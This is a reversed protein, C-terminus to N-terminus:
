EHGILVDDIKEEPNPAPLLYMFRIVGLRGYGKTIPKVEHTTQSPMVMLMNREIPIELDETDKQKTSLIIDGGEFPKPENWIWYMLSIAAIDTHGKYYDGKKNDDDKEDTSVFGSFTDFGIIKRLRNYPEYIGRLAMFLALNQGYRSGFEAIVGQTEIIKKYLFDMFLIKGLSGPTLYLGLNKLLENNPIQSTRLNASLNEEIDRLEVSDYRKIKINSNMTVEELM